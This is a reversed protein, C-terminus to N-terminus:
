GAVVPQQLQCIASEDQAYRSVADPVGSPLGVAVTPLCAPRARVLLTEHRRCSLAGSATVTAGGHSDGVDRPM